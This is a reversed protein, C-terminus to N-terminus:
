QEKVLRLSLGYCRNQNDTEVQGKDFDFFFYWAWRDDLQTSSWYGGFSGAETVNGGCPRYGKAPLMISKGNPGVVKAGGEVHYWECASVLEELQEKTPVHAAYKEAVEDFTFVGKENEDKWLTGSPLGLDVWNLKVVAPLYQVPLEKQKQEEKPPKSTKKQPANAKKQSPANPPVVGTVTQSEVCGVSIFFAALITILGKM